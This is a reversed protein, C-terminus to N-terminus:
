YIQFIFHMASLKEKLEFAELLISIFNWLKKIM